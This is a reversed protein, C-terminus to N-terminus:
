ARMRFHKHSGANPVGGFDCHCEELDDGPTMTWARFGNLGLSAVPAVHNHVIVKDESLTKPLNVRCYRWGRQKRWETFEKDTM